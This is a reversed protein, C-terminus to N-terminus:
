MKPVVCGALGHMRKGPLMVADGGAVECFVLLIM